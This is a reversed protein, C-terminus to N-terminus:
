PSGPCTQPADGTGHAEHERGCLFEAADLQLAEECALWAGSVSTFAEKLASSDEQVDTAHELFTAAQSWAVDTLDLASMADALTCVLDLTRSDPARSPFVLAVNRDGDAEATLMRHEDVLKALEIASAFPEDDSLGTKTLEDALNELRAARERADSPKPETESAQWDLPLAEAVRRIEDLREIDGHLLIERAESRGDGEGSLKEFVEIAWEAVRRALTFDSDVGRWATGLCRKAEEDEDLRM